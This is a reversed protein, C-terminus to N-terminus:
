LQQAFWDATLNIAQDALTQDEGLVLYIHDAGEIAELTVDESAVVEAAHQSVTPDVDQDETGYVLLVPGTFGTFDTLATSALHSSFFDCSHDLTRWGLDIDIHGEAECEAM